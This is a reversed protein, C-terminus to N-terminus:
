AFLPAVLDQEGCVVLLAGAHGLAKKAAQEVRGATGENVVLVVVDRRLPRSVDADAYFVDGGDALQAWYSEEGFSLEHQQWPHAEGVTLVLVDGPRRGSELLADVAEDAREVADAVGAPLLQVTPATPRPGPSPRPGPTPRPGPVPRAARPPVPRPPAPRPGPVPAATTVAPSTARGVAAPMRPASADSKHPFPVGPGPISEHIEPEEPFVPM